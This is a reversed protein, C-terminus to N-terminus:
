TITRVEKLQAITVSRKSKDLLEVSIHLADNKYRYIIASIYSYEINKFVVPTRNKLAIKAENNTM